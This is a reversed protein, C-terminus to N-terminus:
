LLCNSLDSDQYSVSNVQSPELLFAAIFSNSVLRPCTHPGHRSVSAGLSQCYLFVTGDRLASLCSSSLTSSSALANPVQVLAVGAPATATSPPLRPWLHLALLPLSSVRRRERGLKRNGAPRGTPQLWLAMFRLSVPCLLRSGPDCLLSLLASLPHLVATGLPSELVCHQTLTHWQSRYLSCVNRVEQSLEM